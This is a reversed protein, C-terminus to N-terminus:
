LGVTINAQRLTVERMEELVLLQFFCFFAGSVASHVAIIGIFEPGFDDVEVYSLATRYM